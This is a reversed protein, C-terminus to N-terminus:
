AYEVATVYVKGVFQAPALVRCGTLTLSKFNPAITGGGDDVQTGIMIRVNGLTGMAAWTVDVYPQDGDLPEAGTFTATAQRIAAM